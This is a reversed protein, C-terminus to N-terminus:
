FCWRMEELGRAEKLDNGPAFYWWPSFRHGGRGITRGGARAQNEATHCGEREQKEDGVGDVEGPVVNAEGGWAEARGVRGNMADAKEGNRVFGAFGFKLEVGDSGFFVNGAGACDEGVGLAIGAPVDGVVGFIGDRHLGKENKIGCNTCVIKKQGVGSARCFNAWHTLV